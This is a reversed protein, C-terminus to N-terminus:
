HGADRANPLIIPGREVLLNGL